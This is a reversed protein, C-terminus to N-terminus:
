LQGSGPDRMLLLANGGRKLESSQQSGGYRRLNCKCLANSKVFMCGTNALKNVKLGIILILKNGINM